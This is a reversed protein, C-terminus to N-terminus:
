LRNRFVEVKKKKGTSVRANYRSVSLLFGNSTGVNGRTLTQRRTSIVLRGQNFTTVLDTLTTELKQQVDRKKRASGNETPVYRTIVQSQTLTLPENIM